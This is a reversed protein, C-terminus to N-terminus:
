LIQSFLYRTHLNLLIFMKTAETKTKFISIIFSQLFMLSIDKGKVMCLWVSCFTCLGVGVGCQLMCSKATETCHSIKSFWLDAKLIQLYGYQVPIIYILIFRENRISRWVVICMCKVTHVGELMSAQISCFNSMTLSQYGQLQKFRLIKFLIQHVQCLRLYVYLSANYLNM